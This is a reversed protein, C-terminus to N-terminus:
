DLDPLSHAASPLRWYSYANFPSNEELPPSLLIGTSSFLSHKPQDQPAIDGDIQRNATEEGDKRVEKEAETPFFTSFNSGDGAPFEMTDSPTEDFSKRDEGISTSEVKLLPQLVETAYKSWEICSELKLAIEPASAAKQILQAMRIAYGLACKRVSKGSALTDTLGLTALKAPLDTQTLFLLQQNLDGSMAAQVLQLCAQHLFSNWPFEFFLSIALEPLRSLTLVPGVKGIRYLTTILELCRIKAEGLCTASQGFATPLSETCPKTLVSELVPITSQLLNHMVAPDLLQTFKENSLLSNLLCLASKVCLDAESAMVTVVKGLMRETALPAVVMPWVKLESFRQNLDFLLGTLNTLLSCNDGSLLNVLAEIVLCRQSIYIDDDVTLVRLLADAISRSQVHRLLGQMAKHEGFLYELLKLSCQNMFAGFAKSFYGALTLNLTEGYLLSFFYNM